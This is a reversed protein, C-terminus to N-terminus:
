QDRPRIRIEVTVNCYPCHFTFSGSENTERVYSLSSDKLVDGVNGHACVAIGDDEASRWEIQTNTVSALEEM